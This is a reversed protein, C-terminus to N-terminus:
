RFDGERNKYSYAFGPSHRAQLTIRAVKGGGRRELVDQIAAITNKPDVPKDKLVKNIPEYLADKTKKFLQEFNKVKLKALEGVLEPPRDPGLGQGIKEAYDDLQKLALKKQATIGAGFPWSFEAYREGAQVLPHETQASIPPTIGARKAAEMGTRIEPTVSKAFPALGRSAARGLIESAGGMLAGGGIGLAAEKSTEPPEGPLVGGRQGLQKFANGAAGGLAAGPIGGAISGIVTGALEPIDEKRPKLRELLSRPAVVPGSTQRSSSETLGSYEEWPKIEAPQPGYDEWPKDSM